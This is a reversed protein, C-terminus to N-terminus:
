KGKVDVRIACFVYDLSIGDRPHRSAPMSGSKIEIWSYALTVGALPRFEERIDTKHYKPALIQPTKM